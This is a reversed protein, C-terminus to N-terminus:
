ILRAFRYQTIFPGIVFDHMRETQSRLDIYLVTFAAIPHCAGAHREGGEDIRTPLPLGGFTEGLRKRDECQLVDVTGNGVIEGMAGRNIGIQYLLLRRQRLELLVQALLIRYQILLERIGSSLALCGL